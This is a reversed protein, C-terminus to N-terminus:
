PKFPYVVCKINYSTHFDSYVSKKFKKSKHTSAHLQLQPHIKAFYPLFKNKHHRM